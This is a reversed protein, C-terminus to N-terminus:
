AEEGFLETAAAAVGPGQPGHQGAERRARKEGPTAPRGGRALCATVEVSRYRRALARRQKSSSARPFIKRPKRNTTFILPIDAEIYADSYRAPLSRAEDWDLLCLADEPSWQRFNCDDFIIGDTPGSIRKLDDPRRVILPHDFHAKAYATKCYATDGHLVIPMDLELAPQNFDDLTFLKQQPTGVRESLMQKITTGKAYYIHPVREALLLMGEKVTNARNLMRAWAPVKDASAEAAENDGGANPAREALEIQRAEAEAADRRADNVLPTELEGIYEGDKMDYAIVRERDAPTSKVAQLEPHLIRGDLGHLDFLTTHHRDAVDIKKGFKMYAHIHKNRDVHAPETHTELGITYERM